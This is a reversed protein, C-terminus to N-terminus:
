SSASRMMYEHENSSSPHAQMCSKNAVPRLLQIRYLTQLLTPSPGGGWSRMSNYMSRGESVGELFEVNTYKSVIEYWNIGYRKLVVYWIMDSVHCIVVHHKAQRNKKRDLYDIVGCYLPRYVRKTM